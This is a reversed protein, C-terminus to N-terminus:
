DLGLHNDLDAPRTDEPCATTYFTMVVVARLADSNKLPSVYHTYKRADFFIMNGAVPHIRSADAEIEDVGWVEGRNSVVLEGGTGVPNDTVYLLGTLPVTDVHSEYREEQGRQVQITLGRHPNNSLSVPDPSHVQALKLIPGTYLEYLWPLNQTAATNGVIYTPIETDRSAERSTISTPHILIVRGFKEAVDLISQQWGEPLMSRLDYSHWTFRALESEADEGAEADTM